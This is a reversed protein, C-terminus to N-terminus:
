SLGDIRDNIQRELSAIASGLISATSANLETMALLLKNLDMEPALLTKQAKGTAESLLANMEEAVPGFNNEHDM